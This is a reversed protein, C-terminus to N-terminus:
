KYCGNIISILTRINTTVLSKTTLLQDTLEFINVIKKSIDKSNVIGIQSLYCEVIIHWDIAKLEVQRM